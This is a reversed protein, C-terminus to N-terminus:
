NDILDNRLLAYYASRTVGHKEVIGLNILHNLEKQIAQRSVNFHRQLDKNTLREKQLFLKVIEKQKVNLEHIISPPIEFGLADQPVRVQDMSEPAYFTVEFYGGSHNFDPAKLGHDLCRQYMRKIGRGKEEIDEFYSLMRAILPNRSVAKYRRSRIKPLTLPHPLLGPSAIQIKDPYKEIRITAGRITYDRHAIANVVAERLAPIPYEYVLVRKFGIIRYTKRIKGQLFNLAKEVAKPLPGEANDSDEPDPTYEDTYVDLCIRIQPFYREPHRAFLLAGANSLYYENWESNFYILGFASLTEMKMKEAVIESVDNVKSVFLKVLEFMAERLPIRSLAIDFDSGAHLSNEFDTNQDRTPTIGRNQLILLLSDRVERKLERYNNFNKYKHGTEPNSVIEILNLIEKDRQTEGAEKIYILIEKGTQVARKYERHTSSLGDRGKKGYTNGIIGVYVECEDLKNIYGRSVPDTEAPLDEFRIIQVNDRLFADESVMEVIALRETALENQVSSVFVQLKSM